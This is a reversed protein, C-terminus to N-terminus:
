DLEQIRLNRWRVQLPDTRGGVGHVQLGLFGAPVLEDHLDAVPIGNILTRLRPGVAEVRYHNWGGPVFASHAAQEPTPQALWGRGGEDYIGGSFGRNTPDIEVQYGHVQGDQYDPTSASRIQMGSNLEPDVKVEFELIFDAYDRTTCLFSNATNPRTEGLICNDEVAYHADGGRQTFNDLSTGDFLPTWAPEPERTLRQPKQHESHACGALALLATLLTAAAPTKM